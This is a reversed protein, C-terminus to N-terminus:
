KPAARRGAAAGRGRGRGRVPAVLGFAQVLYMSVEVPALECLWPAGAPPPAAGGGALALLLQRAARARGCAAAAAAAFVPEARIGCAFSRFGFFCAVGTALHLPAAASWPLAFELTQMIQPPSFSALLRPPASAAASAVTGRLAPGGSCREPAGRGRAPPGDGGKQQSSASPQYRSLHM